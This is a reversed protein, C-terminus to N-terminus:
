CPKNPSVGCSNFTQGKGTSVGKEKGKGKNDNGNDRGAGPSGDKTLLRNVLKLQFDTAKELGMVKELSKNIVDKSLGNEIADDVVKEECTANGACATLEKSLATQATTDIEATDTATTAFAPLSAALLLTLALKRM